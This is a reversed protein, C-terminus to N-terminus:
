KCSRKSLSESDWSVHTGGGAGTYLSACYGQELLLKIHSENLPACMVTTGGLEECQNIRFRCEALNKASIQEQVRLSRQLSQQADM